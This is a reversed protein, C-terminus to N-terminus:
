NIQVSAGKIRNVGSSRNLLYTGRIIVKGAKTLIISSKGCRLVIEEKADFTLREGDIRIDKPEGADLSFSTQELESHLTDVIIPLRANNNEFMLLVKQNVSLIKKQLQEKVSHTFLAATPGYINEPFDVLIQGNDHIGVIKGIRVTEVPEQIEFDWIKEELALTM